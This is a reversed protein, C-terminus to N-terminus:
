SPLNELHNGKGVNDHQCNQMPHNSAHRQPTTLNEKDHASTKEHTDVATEAAQRAVAKHFEHENLQKERRNRHTQANM